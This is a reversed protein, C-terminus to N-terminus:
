SRRKTCAKAGVRALMVSLTTLGITLTAVSKMLEVPSGATNMRIVSSDAQM